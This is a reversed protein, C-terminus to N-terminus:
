CLDPTPFPPQTPSRIVLVKWICWFCKKSKWLWPFIKYCFIRLKEMDPMAHISSLHEFFNTSTPTLANRQQDIWIEIIWTYKKCIPSTNLIKKENEHFVSDRICVNGTKMKGGFRSIGSDWVVAFFNKFCLFKVSGEM